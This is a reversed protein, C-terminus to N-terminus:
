PAPRSRARAAAKAEREAARARKARARRKSYEMDKRRENELELWRWPGTKGRRSVFPAEDMGLSDDSTDSAYSATEPDETPDETPDQQPVISLAAKMEDSLVPKVEENWLIMHMARDAVWKEGAEEEFDLGVFRSWEPRRWRYDKWAEEQDSDPDRVRADPDYAKRSHISAVDSDSDPYNLPFGMRTLGDMCIARHHTVVVHQEETDEAEHKVEAAADEAAEGRQLEDEVAPQVLRIVPDPPVYLGQWVARLQPPTDRAFDQAEELSDDSRESPTYSPPETEEAAQRRQQERAAAFDKYKSSPKPKKQNAGGEKKTRGSRDKHNGRQKFFRKKIRGNGEQDIGIGDLGRLPEVATSSSCGM